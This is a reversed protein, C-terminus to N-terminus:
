FRQVRDYNLYFDTRVHSLPFSVSTSVIHTSTEQFQRCLVKLLRIPMSDLISIAFTLTLFFCPVHTKVTTRKEGNIFAPTPSLKELLMPVNRFVAGKM